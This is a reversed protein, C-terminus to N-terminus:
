QTHHSTTVSNGPALIAQPPPDFTVAIVPCDDAMQRAAHFLTAHGRHVGDLNGVVVVGGQLAEAPWEQWDISHRGM